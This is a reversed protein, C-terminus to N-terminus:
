RNPRRGRRKPEPADGEDEEILDDDEVDDLPKELLAESLTDLTKGIFTERLEQLEEVRVNLNQEHADDKVIRASAQEEWMQTIRRDLYIQLNKKNLKM